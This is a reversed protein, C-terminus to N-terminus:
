LVSQALIDSSNKEPAFDLKVPNILKPNLDHYYLEKAKAEIRLKLITGSRIFEISNFQNKM